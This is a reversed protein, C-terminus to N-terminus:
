DIREYDTAEHKTFSVQGFLTRSATACVHINSPASRVAPNLKGEATLTLRIGTMCIVCMKRNFSWTGKAELTTKDSLEVLQECRGDAELTITETTQKPLKVRYQGVMDTWDIPRFFCWALALAVIPLVCIGWFFSRKKAMFM